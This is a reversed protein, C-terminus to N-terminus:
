LDDPGHVSFVCLGPTFRRDARAQSPVLGKIPGVLRQFTGYLSLKCAYVYLAINGTEDKNKLQM